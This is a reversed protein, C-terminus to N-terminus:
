AEAKEVVYGLRKILEEIFSVEQKLLLPENMYRPVSEFEASLRGVIKDLVEWRKLYPYPNQNIQVKLEHYRRRLDEIKAKYELAVDERAEIDKDMKQILEETEKILDNIELINNKFNRYKRDQVCEDTDLILAQIQRVNGLYEGYDERIVNIRTTAVDKNDRMVKNLKASVPTSKLANLEIQCNELTRECKSHKGKRLLVLLVIMLIFIGAVIAYAITPTINLYSTMKDILM